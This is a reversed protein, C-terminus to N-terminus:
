PRERERLIPSGVAGGTEMRCGAGHVEARVRMCPALRKMQKRIMIPFPGWAGAAGRYSCCSGMDSRPSSATPVFPFVIRGMRHPLVPDPSFSMRTLCALPFPRCTLRAPRAFAPSLVPVHDQRASRYSGLSAIAGLFPASGHACMFARSRALDRAQQDDEGERRPKAGRM